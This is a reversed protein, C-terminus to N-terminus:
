RPRIRARHDGRIARSTGCAPWHRRPRSVRRARASCLIVDKGRISGLELTRQSAVLAELSVAHNMLSDQYRKVTLVNRVRPALESPDIPKTLFDSAGLELVSLRTSRDTSATLILVPIHCIEPESRVQRLVDVGSIGPMMVDLIILDPKDEIIQSIARAPDSLGVCRQYGLEQLYKQCVKVNIPEDDIILIKTAAEFSQEVGISGPTPQRRRDTPPCVISFRGQIDNLLEVTDNSECITTSM